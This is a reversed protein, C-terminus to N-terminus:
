AAKIRESYYSIEVVVRFWGEEVGRVERRVDGYTIGGVLRHAFAQEIAEALATARQTGEAVPVYLYAIALGYDRVAFSKGLEIRNSSVPRITFDCWPANAPVTGRANDHFVVLGEDAAVEDRFRTRVAADAEAWTTV